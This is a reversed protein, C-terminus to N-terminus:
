LGLDSACLNRDDGSVIGDPEVLAKELSSFYGGTGEPKLFNCPKKIRKKHFGM